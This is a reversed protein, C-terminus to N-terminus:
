GIQHLYYTDFPEFVTGDDMRVTYSTHYSCSHDVAIITGESGYEPAKFENRGFAPCWRVRSGVKM